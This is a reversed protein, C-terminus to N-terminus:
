LIKIGFNQAETTSCFRVKRGTILYNEFGFLARWRSITAIQGLRAQYRISGILSSSPPAALRTVLVVPDTKQRLISTLRRLAIKARYWKKPSLLEEVEAYALTFRGKTPSEFEAISVKGNAQNVSTISSILRLDQTLKVLKFEPIAHDLILNSNTASQELSVLFDCAQDRPYAIWNLHYSYAILGALGIKTIPFSLKKTRLLLFILYIQSSVFAIRFALIQWFSNFPLFAVVFIAFIAPSLFKKLLLIEFL